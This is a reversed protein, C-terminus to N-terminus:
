PSSSSKVRYHDLTYPNRGLVTDGHLIISLIEEDTKILPLFHDHIIM